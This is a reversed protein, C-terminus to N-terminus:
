NKKIAKYKFPSLVEMYLANGCQCYHSWPRGCNEDTSISNLKGCKTCKITFSVRAWGHKDLTSTWNYKKDNFKEYEMEIKFEVQISNSNISIEKNMLKGPFGDCKPIPTCIGPSNLNKFIITRFARQCNICPLRIELRDSISDFNIPVVPLQCNVVYEYRSM